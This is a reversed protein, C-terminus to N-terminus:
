SKYYRNYIEPYERKLASLAEKSDRHIWDLTLYAAVPNMQCKQTLDFYTISEVEMETEIKSELWKLIASKIYPASNEIKGILMDINEERYINLTILEQKLNDM